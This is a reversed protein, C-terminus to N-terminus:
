LEFLVSDFNAIIIINELHQGSAITLPTPLTDQPNTDYHGVVHWDTFLNTGYQHAIAFYEYTGAPLPIQYNLSDIYFTLKNENLGPFLIARGSTIENQISAPPFNPFLILRVDVVSDPPATNPPPWNQFHVTGSIGTFGPPNNDPSIGEDCSLM